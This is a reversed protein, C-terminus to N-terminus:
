IYRRSSIYSLIQTTHLCDEHGRFLAHVRYSTLLHEAYHLPWLYTSMQLSWHICVGYETGDKLPADLLMHANVGSMGFSSTSALTGKTSTKSTLFASGCQRPMYAHLRANKQWDVIAAAVYANVTRLHMIPASASNVLAGIAM